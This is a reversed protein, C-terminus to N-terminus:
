YFFIETPPVQSLTLDENKIWATYSFQLQCAAQYEFPYFSRISPQSDGWRHYFVNSIQSVSTDIMPVCQNVFVTFPETAVIPLGNTNVYDDM